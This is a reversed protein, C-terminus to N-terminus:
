AGSRSNTSDIFTGEHCKLVRAPYHKLFDPNHTAMLVATGRKNIELFLKLIDLAVGPDLNGTPEDALLILPDNLLARAVAVRQQEGGSLQHARKKAAWGLGVKMLVEAIKQKMERKKKWGTARLVFWLNEAVSRDTLLQFDQFIIGLRRRLLPLASRKMSGLRFGAVDVRGTRLPLDAYLIKLLSSKGSGTAGTLFAFEGSCIVFNVDRLVPQADQFVTLGSVHIISRSSLASKYIPFHSSIVVLPVILYVPFLFPLDHM